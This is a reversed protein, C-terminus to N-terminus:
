KTPKVIAGSLPPQGPTELTVPQVLAAAGAPGRKLVRGSDGILTAPKVNVPMQYGIDTFLQKAKSVLDSLEKFVTPAEKELLAPTVNVKIKGVSFITGNKLLNESSDIFAAFRGLENKANRTVTPLLAQKVADTESITDNIFSTQNNTDDPM